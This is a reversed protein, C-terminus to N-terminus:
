RPLYQKYPFDANFGDTKAVLTWSSSGPNISCGKKTFVYRHNQISILVTVPKTSQTSFTAFYRSKRSNDFRYNSFGMRDATVTSAFNSVVRIEFVNSANKRQWLEVTPKEKELYITITFRAFDDDFATTLTTKRNEWFIPMDDMVQANQLQSLKDAFHVSLMKPYVYYKNFYSSLNNKVFTPLSAFSSNLYNLFENYENLAIYLKRTSVEFQFKDATIQKSYPIYTSYQQGSVTFTVTMGLRIECWNTEFDVMAREIKVQCTQSGSGLTFPDKLADKVLVNIFQEGIQFNISPSINAVAPPQIFEAYTDPETGIKALPFASSYLLWCITGFKFSIQKM